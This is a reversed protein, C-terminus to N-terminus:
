GLEMAYLTACQLSGKRRSWWAFPRRATSRWDKTLLLMWFSTWSGKFAKKQILLSHRTMQTGSTTSVSVTSPSETTRNRSGDSYTNATCTSSTRVWWAGKVYGVISKLGSQWATQFSSPVRKSTISITSSGNTKRMWDSTRSCRSSANTAFEILPKRAISLASTSTRNTNYTENALCGCLSFPMEREKTQCSATSVCVITESNQSLTNPWWCKQWPTATSVSGIAHTFCM